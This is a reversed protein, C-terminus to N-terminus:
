HYDFYTKSPRGQDALSLDIIRSPPAVDDDSGASIYFSRGAIIRYFHGTPVIDHLPLKSGCCQGAHSPHLPATDHHSTLRRRPAVAAGQHDSVLIRVSYQGPDPALSSLYGTYVGDSGTIDPYGTGTDTMMVHDSFGGPGTIDAEVLAGIIPDGRRTVRTWIIVPLQDGTVVNDGATVLVGDDGSVGASVDVTFGDSPFQINDYLKVRYSWVGAESGNNVRFYVLGTDFQSFINNNGRPDTLEFQAVKMEDDIVLMIFLDGTLGYEVSFTSEVQTQHYVRSTIKVLKEEEVMNMVEMLVESVHSSLMNRKIWSNVAWVAGGSSSLTYFDQPIQDDTLAITFAKVSSYQLLDGLKISRPQDGTILVVVGEKIDGRYDRLSQIGLELACKVCTRDQSSVRRPLRSTIDDKNINTIVTQPLLLRPKVDQSVISISSNLPLTQIFRFVSKRVHQWSSQLGSSLDLVLSYHGTRPLIYQFVPPTFASSHSSNIHNSKIFDPHSFIIKRASEGHCLLNQKTPALLNLNTLQDCFIEEDDYDDSCGSTEETDTGNNFQERYIKDNHFGRMEEFVGYRYKLWERMMMRERAQSQQLVFHRSVSLQLGTHGCDLHQLSWPDDSVYHQSETVVIDPRRLQGSKM